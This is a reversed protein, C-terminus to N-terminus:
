YLFAIMEKNLIFNKIKIPGKKLYKNRLHTRKKHAKSLEKNLFPMNNGRIYKVKTPAM